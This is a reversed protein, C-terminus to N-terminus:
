REVSPYEIASAESVDGVSIGESTAPPVLNGVNRMTILTGGIMALLGAIAFAQFAFISMAQLPVMVFLMLMVLATQITLLGDRYTYSLQRLNNM